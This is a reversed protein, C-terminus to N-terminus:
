SFPMQSLVLVLLAAAGLVIAFVASVPKESGIAKPRYQVSAIQDPAFAHRGALPRDDARIVISDGLSVVTGTWHVGSLDTVEAEGGVRAPAWSVEAGPGSIRPRVRHYAPSCAGSFLAGALIGIVIVTRRTPMM